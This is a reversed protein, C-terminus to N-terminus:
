GVSDWLESRRAAPESGEKAAGVIGFGNGIIVGGVPECMEASLARSILLIAIVTAGASLRRPVEPASLDFTALGHRSPRDVPYTRESAIDSDM